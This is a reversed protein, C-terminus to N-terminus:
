NNTFVFPYIVSVSGGGSPAPFTLRGLVRQVCADVPPSQLTDVETVLGTVAGSPAISWRMVLKGSLEPMRMLEKEYCSRVQPTVRSIVRQIEERSLGGMYKIKGPTIRATGKGRGGLDISGAGRGGSLDVSGSNLGGGGSGSGRTGLGGTGFAGGISSGRLGLSGNVGAGLGGPGFVNGVQGQTGLGSSSLGSTGAPVVLPQAVVALDGPEGHEGANRVAPDVVVFSTRETLLHHRLGLATVEELDADTPTARDALRAVRERAWLQALVAHEQRELNDEVAIINEYRKGALGDGSVVVRGGSPGTYKGLMVLPRGPYLDPARAPELDSVAFGEFRVDINTLAPRGAVTRFHDVAREGQELGLMAFPETRGAAALGEILQRNVSQGIGFAFLTAQGLNQRVTDFVAREASIFGDTVVVIMRAPREPADARPFALTTTLADLLQTGGGGRHGDLLALANARNKASAPVSGDQSMMSGSGAFFLMNFRDQPRLEDVLDRVLRRAIELPFGAMSGSVDVVFIVERPPAEEATVEPPAEGLLVFFNEGDTANNADKPARFLLVGTETQSGALQWRLVLDRDAVVDNDDSVFSVDVEDSSRFKPAVGHSPSGVRRVGIPSRLTVDVRTKVSTTRSFGNDVFAESGANGAFRPGMTQPLVLEYTGDVPRVLESAEVVVVIRDGPMIHTLNMTVANPRRQELLGATQGADRAADFIKQAEDKQRIEARLERQDNVQLRLDHLASRTSTPFVYTAELPVRGANEWVQELHIHAVVGVVEVTTTQSRLPLADVAVGAPLAFGGNEPPDATIGFALSPSSLSSAVVGVFAVVPFGSWRM